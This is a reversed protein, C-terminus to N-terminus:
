LNMIHPVIEKSKINYITQFCLLRLKLRAIMKEQKAVFQLIVTEDYFKHISLQFIFIISSKYISEKYLVRYINDRIQESLNSYQM